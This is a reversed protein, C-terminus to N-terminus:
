AAGERQELYLTEKAALDYVAQQHNSTAFALAPLVEEFVRSRDLYILGDPQHHWVGFYVRPDSWDYRDIYQVIQSVGFDRWECVFESGFESAAYGITPVTGNIPHQTLGGETLVSLYADSAFEVSIQTM